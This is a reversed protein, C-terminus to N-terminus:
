KERVPIWIEEESEPAQQKYKTGLISFHPRDDLIYDSAPLWSQFIYQYTIHGESAPGKHLFVAYRGTPITITEMGAPVSGFDYVELAVWKVFENHPSFNKFYQDDYINVDYLDQGVSNKIEQRVPAFSQFLIATKNGALSMSMRKGILKKPLLTEIRAQLETM